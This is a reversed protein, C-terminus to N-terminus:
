AKKVLVVSTPGLHSFPWFRFYSVLRAKVNKDQRWHHTGTTFYCVSFGARRLEHLLIDSPIDQVDFKREHDDWSNESRLEFSPNLHHARNMRLLYYLAALYLSRNHVGGNGLRILLHGSHRLIRYLEVLATEWGVVHELVSQSFVFDFTNDAFPLRKLDAVAFDANTPAKDRALGVGIASIDVGVFRSHSYNTAFWNTINGAGSGAELILTGPRCHTSILHHVEPEVAIGGRQSHWKQMMEYYLTKSNLVEAVKRDLQHDYLM